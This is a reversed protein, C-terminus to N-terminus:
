KLGNEFNNIINIIFDVDNATMDPYLPLSLARRYYNEAELCLGKVYGLDRYYPHWYVPLYHVQVGIGNEHFKQYVVKRQEENKLEIYYLHWAPIIDPLANPLQLYSLQKLSSNYSNVIEQRKKLFSDIKKLQSIGLACQIDTIRYNYGLFQMEHYWPGHYDNLKDKDRIIGHSRFATLKEYYEQNDTTVAGGEGTTIHKVPHFSFVTMHAISGITRGHYVAGLAHSADEVVVLNHKEAIGMIEKLDAPHGAFDVPALVKTCPTIKEEIKEPDINITDPRVDVFVPRAGLYLAANSTAAFTIPTTIVEDGYGVGAAFYAGHLAATGSSFVVAYKAGAKDALAREFETVKPGTTLWDSRLTEVVAQIDDEDISQKGYPIYSM